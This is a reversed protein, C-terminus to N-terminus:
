LRGGGVRINAGAIYGAKGSLLFWIAEAIEEPEAVRGMPIKEAQAKIRDAGPMDTKTMGPAVTNVRIGEAAVEQSLGITFSNLAGKSTAYLVGIGPNGLNASGSSVNVIAGGQGGHKTSMRKIAERACIMCGTVNVALLHTIEEPTLEEVRKRNGNIGANNVLGTVPGLDRDVQEFMAVVEAENSTDAKVAIAKGGADTIDAVVKDAAEKDNVYNVCVAHGHGAVLKATAAGIGRSGGTVITVGTM